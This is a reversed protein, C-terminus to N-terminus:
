IENFNGKFKTSKINRDDIYHYNGGRPKNFLINHYKFGHEKIWEKTVEREADTRSTFFTIINGEAYWKNIKDKAGPIEYATKMRIREENPIDECIVGDIDILYNTLDSRLKPSMNKGEETKSMKLNNQLKEM